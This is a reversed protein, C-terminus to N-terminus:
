ARYSLIIVVSALQKGAAASGDRADPMGRQDRGTTSEVDLDPINFAFAIDVEGSLNGHDVRAMAMGLNHCGDTRVVAFGPVHIGEQGTGFALLYSRRFRL